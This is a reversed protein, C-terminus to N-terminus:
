ALTGTVNFIFDNEKLTAVNVPDETTSVVFKSVNSEFAITETGYKLVPAESTGTDTINDLVAKNSHTHKKSVADDIEAVTSSPKGVISDWTTTVDISESEAIKQWGTETVQAVFLSSVDTEANFGSVDTVSAGTNDDYYVTGAQYTGTAQVYSTQNAIITYDLTAPDTQIRKRYIAWGNNVTTDASADTVMVLQGETVANPAAVMGAINAFETTIALIAPNLNAAPVFGDAGLKLFGNAQNIANLASREAASVHIDTNTVHDQLTHTEDGVIFVQSATTKPFYTDVGGTSNVRQLTILQRTDAM